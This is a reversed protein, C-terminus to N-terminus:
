RGRRTADMKKALLIVDSDRCGAVASLADWAHEHLSKPVGALMGIATGRRGSGDLGYASKLAAEVDDKSADKKGCLKKKIEQPSAQVIPLEFRGALGALIGWSLAVKAAASANRPFSMSEVCIAAFNTGFPHGCPLLRDGDRALLVGLLAADVERARRLNDDSALVRRKKDSKQTRVVGLDVVRDGSLDVVAYGLASLGPDIGLVYSV